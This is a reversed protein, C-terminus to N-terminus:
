PQIWWYDYGIEYQFTDGPKKFRVNAGYFNYKQNFMFVYPADDAVKAYVARLKKVRVARDKEIRAEDIMKDVEANKYNVFNSAGPIASASHWIQKPDWDTVGGWGLAVAEFNSEDLLKTFSSWELYKIEMKIGVKQLDEKFWTWYKEMDKNPHILEFKFDAKKGDIMKDLVGDKDSDKWGAKNLLETAKKPDYLIPKVNPDAYESQIYTPGTALDAMGFLFKKNMEERNMLHALALRVNKDQFVPKKQNWGVFYYSKPVKNLVKKAEITKGWPDGQTKKMYNESNLALYDLEGKKLMEIQVNEEKVFRFVYKEYNSSGKWEPTNFGYWKAFRKLVIKQGKDYTDLMYPGAGVFSKNLKSGKAVDGYVKKPIISTTAVVEFNKFYNDKMTFKITTPNVIEINSISEYYPIKEAAKYEPIKYVDFSFKVDEATIPDGNHFFIDKRLTFTFTKNDKSVEWKESLRPKWDYTEPHRGLLSDMAESLIYDASVDNAAVPNLTPPEAGTNRTMTGGVPASSNIEVAANANIGIVLLLSVALFRNLLRTM